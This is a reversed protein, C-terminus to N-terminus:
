RYWGRPRAGARQLQEDLLYGGSFGAVAGDDLQRFTRGMRNHKRYDAIRTTSEPPGLMTVISEELFRGAAAMYRKLHVSSLGLSCGVNDFEHYRGDEPLESQLDQNVGFLDNM